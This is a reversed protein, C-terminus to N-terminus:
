KRARNNKNRRSAGIAATLGVAVGMVFVVLVVVAVPAMWEHGFFFHLAMMESNKIALGFLFVFVVARLLWIMLKLLAAM